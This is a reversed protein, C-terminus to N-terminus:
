MNVRLQDGVTMFVYLRQRVRECREVSQSFNKQTIPHPAVLAKGVNIESWILTVEHDGWFPTDAVVECM